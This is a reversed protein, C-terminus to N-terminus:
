HRSGRGDPGLMSELYDAAGTECLQAARRKGATPDHPTGLATAMAEALVAAEGVPALRGFRGNDLIERPGDTDTSVIPLGAMMAEILMNGFGERDSSSVFLDASAYYPWPDSAFGPLLVRDQLGLEAILEQLRPRLEGEGLIILKPAHRRDLLAFSRILLEHNKAGKLMGVTVIRKGAKGWLEEVAPSTVIHAPAPNVPNHIVRFKDRPIGSLDALDEAVANSVCVRRTALPYILRTTWRLATAQWSGAYQQSLITHDSVVVRTRTRATRAALIAIITLPWMSALMAAPRRLRLYRVIPLLANRMRPARLDFLRAGAPIESALQGEGRLAVLDIEHGREIFEQALTLTVREAGGNALNPLLLTLRAM